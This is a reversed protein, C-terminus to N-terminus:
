NDCELVMVLKPVPRVLTSAKTKVEASRLWKWWSFCSAGQRFALIRNSCESRCSLHYGRGACKASPFAMETERSPIALVRLGVEELLPWKFVAGAELSPTRLQGGQCFCRNHLSLQDKLLLLHNPTLCSLDNPDSLSRTLPRSNLISEVESLLTRLGDNTLTQEKLLGALIRRISRILREWSGGHHSAAPTNFTWDISRQLLFSSIKSQNWGRIAERLEREAGVFNTGNDSRMSKVQGRRAIFRRLANVFADTDLSVAMEIHVARTVLCIFLVGYRKVLSRGQKVHFPEFFDVGTNTFPPLDPSVRDSPLDAMMQTLSNGFSRRCVVCKSLVLRTLANAQVVWYRERLRSLVQERGGHGMQLHISRIISEAVPSEPSIIIPFKTDESVSSNKLRGGVRLVDQVLVPSLRALRGQKLGSGAKLSKIEESYHVQQSWRLVVM